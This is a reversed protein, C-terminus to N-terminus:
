DRAPTASKSRIGFFVDFTALLAMVSGVLAPGTRKPSLDPSPGASFVDRNVLFSRCPVYGTNMCGLRVTSPKKPIRELDAVGALSQNELDEEAREGVSSFGAFPFVLGLSLILCIFPYKRQYCQHM